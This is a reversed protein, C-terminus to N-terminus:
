ELTVATSDTATTDVREAGSNQNRAKNPNVITAIDKIGSYQTLYWKNDVLSYLNEIMFRKQVIIRERMVDGMDFFPKVEIDEDNPDIAKIVKWNDVDWLFRDNSGDPSSGMMPFEIRMMQFASDQYFKDRFTQFDERGKDDLPISGDGGCSCLFLISLLIFTIVSSKM